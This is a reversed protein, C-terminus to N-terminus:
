LTIPSVPITMPEFSANNITTFGGFTQMAFSLKITCDTLPIQIDCSPFYALEGTRCNGTSSICLPCLLIWCRNCGITIPESKHNKCYRLEESLFSEKYAEISIM